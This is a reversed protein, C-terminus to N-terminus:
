ASPKVGGASRADTAPSPGPDCAATSAGRRSTPPRTGRARSGAPPASSSDRASRSTAATAISSSSGISSIARRKAISSTPCLAPTKSGSFSAHIFRCYMFTAVGARSHAPTPATSGPARSGAAGTRRPSPTGRRAAASPSRIPRDARPSEPDAAREQELEVRRRRQGPRVDGLHQVLGARALHDRRQGLLQAVAGRSSRSANRAAAVRTFCRVPCFPCRARGDSGRRTSRRPRRDPARGRRGPSRDRRSAAPRCRGRARDGAAALPRTRERPQQSRAVRSLRSTSRHRSTAGAPLEFSSAVVGVLAM